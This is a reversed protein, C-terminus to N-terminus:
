GCEGVFLAKRAGNAALVQTPNSAIISTVHTVPKIRAACAGPNWAGDSSM